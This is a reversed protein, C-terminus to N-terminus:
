GGTAQVTVTGSAPSSIYFTYVGTTPVAFSSIMTQSAGTGTVNTSPVVYDGSPAALLYGADDGSPLTATISITQGATAYVSFDLNGGSSHSVAPGNLTMVMDPEPTGLNVTLTGGEGASNVSQIDIAAPLEMYPLTVSGPGSSVIDDLLAGNTAYIEYGQVAPGSAPGSWSIVADVQNGPTSVSVQPNTPASPTTSDAAAATRMLLQSGASSPTIGALDQAARTTYPTSNGADGTSQYNLHGTMSTTLGFPSFSFFGQCIPDDGHCYSVVKQPSPFEPRIRSSPHALAGVRGPTFDGRASQSNPNFLPDGFLAVGGIGSRQTTDLAQYANGTVQAGQSYGALIITTSTGCSNEITNIEDLENSLAIQGLGVSNTYTGWGLSASVANPVGDVGAVPVAPYPNAWELTNATTLRKIGMYSNVFAAVQPGFGGDTDFAQGSGRTGLIAYPKCDVAAVQKASRHAAKTSFATRPGATSPRASASQAASTELSLLGALTLLLAAAMILTRRAGAQRFNM